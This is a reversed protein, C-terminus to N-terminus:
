LTLPPWTFSSTAPRIQTLTRRTVIPKTRPATRPIMRPAQCAVRWYLALSWAAVSHDSIMRDVGVGTIM